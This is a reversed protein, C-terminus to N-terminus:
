RFSAFQKTIFQGLRAFMKLVCVFLMSKIFVLFQVTVLLCSYVGYDRDFLSVPYIFIWLLRLWFVVMKIYRTRCPVDEAIKHLFYCQFLSVLCVSGFSVRTHGSADLQLIYTRLWHSIALFDPYLHPSRFCLVCISQFTFWGTLHTLAKIFLATSVVIKSSYDCGSEDFSAM